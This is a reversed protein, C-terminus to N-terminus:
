RVSLKLVLFLIYIITLNSKRLDIRELKCQFIYLRALLERHLRIPPRRSSLSAADHLVHCSQAIIYAPKPEKGLVYSLLAVIKHAEVLSAHAERIAHTAVVFFEANTSLVLKLETSKALLLKFSL